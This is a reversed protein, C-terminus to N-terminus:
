AYALYRGPKGPEEIGFRLRLGASEMLSVQHTLRENTVFVNHDIPWAEAMWSRLSEFFARDVGSGLVSTRVWHYVAADVDGWRGDSVPTVTAAALFRAEPPFLYVCGLCETEDRSMVTYTFAHGEEHLDQHRRLDDRNAEITFDDAPWSDQEWVRLQERSAMVAEYDRETDATTLPRVVFDAHTFGTPVEGRAIDFAM